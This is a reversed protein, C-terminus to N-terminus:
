ALSVRRTEGVVSDMFECNKAAINAWTLHAVSQSITQVDWKRSLGQALKDALAGAQGPPVLLGNIGERVLEPVGGVRTAVVPVGSALAEVIVNPTGENHSPLCLLDSAAIWRSVETQPIAGIFQVNEGIGTTAVCRELDARCRGDGIIVLQDKSGVARDQQLRAWAKVLLDVGKVPVLEGVFVVVRTCQGLGLAARSEVKPRPFFTGTDFGACPICNLPTTTGHLLRRVKTELDRSVAIVGIAGRLAWRIQSRLSHHTAYINIDSGHATVVYPLGLVRAALAGGVGDPYACHVHLLDVRQKRVLRHLLPLIGVFYSFGSLWNMKPIVLFQPHLVLIGDVDEEYGIRSHARLRPLFRLLPPAYPVPSVVSVACRSRMVRVLNEVFVARHRDASNPFFTTVAVIRM